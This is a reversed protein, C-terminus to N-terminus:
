IESENMRAGTCKIINADGIRGFFHECSECKFSYVMCGEGHPCPTFCKGSELDMDFVVTLNRTGDTM